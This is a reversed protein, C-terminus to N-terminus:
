RTFADTPPEDARFPRDADLYDPLEPPGKPEAGERFAAAVSPRSLVILVVVPYIMLLVPLVATLGLIAPMMSTIPGLNPNKAAEQELVESVLPWTYALNALTLVKVLISLVAYVRSVTRAWPQMSLLGLGGALLLVDLLLSVALSAYTIARRAPMAEDLRQELHKQLDQQAKAQPSSGAMSSFSSGGAAAVGGCVDLMLGVGGGVLSLIALVLVATPRYRTM